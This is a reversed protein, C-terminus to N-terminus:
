PTVYQVGPPTWGGGDVDIFLPNTYALATIGNQGLNGDTLGELTGNGATALDNPIVPFLPKSIGDTGRVIAVVWVDETLDTLSLTTTAELRSAGAIAGDVVVTDVTFESGAQHVFDPSVGYRPVVVDDFGGGIPATTTSRLTVPNVYFEVTDFEAWIPSQIDVTIDVDGDITAIETPLGVALGGTEGTSAAFSEIRVMPSNTGFARGANVNASLTDAIPALSGPDDTPSAVMTRPFGSQNLLTSHTDSDAVGTRVIGQNILNFWDGLNRGYFNDTIQSRSSEIWVELADFTDTFYNSELPDLRRVEGPVASEPPTLGTDVALGSGGDLGLHSYFHNIQVTDTGPDAHAAAIIEAPTLNFHGNAPFDQGDPAPRGHDVSGGNVKTPDITMPWANFHGYDFTTIEASVPSFILSSAGLAAIESAFDVRFDHDSAAFMDVGEGLMSTIRLAPNVQSDPSALTHVHFDGSVFGSSDIVRAIQLDVASTAGATVTIDAFATSYEIGHSAVVRYSGPELAVTSSSGSPGVFLVRSVGFPVRDERDNFIGTTNPILGLINQSNIAQPSPDIGVVSVKAAIPDPGEDVIDVQLAGATPIALDQTVSQFATVVVPNLQPTTGGGQYPHGALHAVISYSGTAVDLSYHGSTDTLTTNVVNRTLPALGWGGPGQAVVGYAAVAVGAVPSGGVTVTGEVTGAARYQAENRGRLISDVTGDGVVFFRTLTLSDGPDGAPALSFAPAQAGILTYTAEQGLLAVSVGSTTFNSSNPVDHVYGYSVGAGSDRGAYAVANCPNAATPSCTVGVLPEGFGYGPQFMEIEGSGNLYEGLFIPLTAGGLNVVTTEIRVYNRGPELIYDTSVEVPLDKDDAAVPFDFGFDAVTSSPNLFDLLDDVGTARLVAPQGDSGDNIIALDTYHAVNEINLHTAMEEFSDRDPDLGTRVIDADIIQGGYQGIGFLNRQVDQIVVRIEDNALLYDNVRCRSMPGDVCDAADTIQQLSAPGGGEPDSGYEAAVLREVSVDHYGLSCAILADETTIGACPAGFDLADVTADSCRTRIAREAVSRFSDVRSATAAECSTSAPLEGASVDDKCDRMEKHVRRLFAQSRGSTVRQCTLDPEPTLGAEDYIMAVTRLAQDLHVDTQCAILEAATTAGICDDGFSLSAVTADDCRAGIRRALRRAARELRRATAEELECDTAPPLDGEAILEECRRLARTATAFYGGGQHGVEAQCLQQAETLAAAAPVATFLSLCFALHCRPLRHARV